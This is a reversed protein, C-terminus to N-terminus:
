EGCAGGSLQYTMEGQKLIQVDFVASLTELVDDAKAANFISTYKCTSLSKNLLEIKIDFHQEIDTIAEALDVDEFRLKDNIWSIANTKVTNDKYLGKSQKHYESSENANLIVKTGTNLASVKVKGENVFVTLKDSSPNNNINFETGLVEVELEGVKVTFPQNDRHMVKFYAEGELHMDRLNEGFADNLTLTSNKNLVVESGDSLQITKTQDGTAFSQPTSTADLFLYAATAMGVLLIAAAAWKQLNFTTSRVKKFKHIPTPKLKAKVKTLATDADFLSEDMEFTPLANLISRNEALFASNEASKAEFDVLIRQEEHSLEGSAEKM